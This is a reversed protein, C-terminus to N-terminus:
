GMLGRVARFPPRSRSLLVPRSRSLAEPVEPSLELNEVPTAMKVEIM